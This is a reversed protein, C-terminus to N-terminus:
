FKQCTSGRRADLPMKSLVARASRERRGDLCAPWLRRAAGPDDADFRESADLARAAELSSCEPLAELAEAEPAPAPASGPPPPVYGGGHVIFVHDKRFGLKRQLTRSRKVASAIEFAERWYGRIRRLRQEETELEEPRPSPPPEDPDM